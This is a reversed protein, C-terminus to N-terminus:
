LADLRAFFAADTHIASFHASRPGVINREVAQLEPTAVSASLHDFVTLVSRLLRGARDFAAVTNDFRPAAEQSALAAIEQRHVLMAEHLAPEIHEARITDFPPLGYPGPWPSLLPNSATNM